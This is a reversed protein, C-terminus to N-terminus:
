LTRGSEVATAVNLERVATAFDGNEYAELGALRSDWEESEEAPIEYAEQTPAAAQEDASRGPATVVPAIEAEEGDDLTRASEEQDWYEGNGGGANGSNVSPPDASAVISDLAAPSDTGDGSDSQNDSGSNSNFYYGYDDSSPVDADRRTSEWRATPEPGFGTELDAEEETAARENSLGEGARLALGDNSPETAYAVQQEVESEAHDEFNGRGGASSFPDVNSERESRSPQRTRDSAGAASRSSSEQELLGAINDQDDAQLDITARPTTARPTSRQTRSSTEERRRAGSSGSSGGSRRDEVEPARPSEAEDPEPQALNGLALEDQIMPVMANTGISGELDAPQETQEEDETEARRNASESLQQATEIGPQFSPEEPAQEENTVAAVTEAMPQDLGATPSHSDENFTGQNLLVSGVLVAMGIVFASAFAPSRFLAMLSFGANAKETREAAELRAARMINQHVTPSVELSPMTAAAEHIARLEALESACDPCERLAAEVEGRLKPDMEDYLFDVLHEKLQECNM